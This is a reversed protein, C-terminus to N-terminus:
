QEIVLHFVRSVSESHVSLLYVGNPLTSGLKIHEDLNGDRAVVKSNYVVQGIMNTLQLSVEEDGTVGLTGKVVFEGKNPNPIVTLVEAGWVPLVATGGSTVHMYVKESGSAQCLQGSTVNCRITDYNAFNKGTYTQKTEGAILKGNKLWQYAPAVVTNTINATFTVSQKDTVDTGPVATITVVPSVPTIVTLTIHDYAELPDACTANSKLRVVVVDGDIPNYTYTAGSAAVSGNVNWEYLPTVGGNVPTALLTVGAGACVSDNPTVSVAVSPVLVPNVIIGASGAMNMSCTTATNDAVVTYTGPTALAGFDLSSGLGPLSDILMGTNYLKYKVGTASGSLLVHVGAAGVCISGGGTVSYLAPKPLVTVTKSATCSTGTTYYVMATGAIIGNVDGFGPGLTIVGGPAKTWVGGGVSNSLTGTAGLCIDARGTIAAPSTVITVTDYVNCGNPGTYTIVVTASSLGIVVGTSPVIGIAPDPSDWLGGVTTDAFTYPVGTCLQKPGSIVGPLSNIMFSVSAFCGTPLTYTLTALGLSYATVLGTPTVTAKTSTWIGLPSADSVTMVSGADCLDHWGTIPAVAANVTFTKTATCGPGNTYTITATGTMLGSVIGTIVDISATTPNSSYWYGGSPSDSLTTTAGVCVASGGTIASPFPNVTIVSSVLCGTVPFTYTLASTGTSVGTLLGTTLGITAVGPNTSTWTGGGISNSLLSTSGVCIYPIGTIPSLPNVTVTTTNICGTTFLTYTIAATGANLGNVVGSGIGVSAVYLDGSSWTGGPTIDSLGTTSGVCVVPTGSIAAPLPNVTVVTTGICGTGLTYTIITTAASVGTVIGSGSTVTAITTNGSSWTGGGADTLATTLGQCVTTTGTIASPLPNVTMTTTIYCGTSVLTYSITATGATVGTVDGGAFIVTAVSTNSSTWYGVGVADSLVSVLGVCVNKVGLIAPPLPNVTVPTTAICGVASTYTITVTGASAGTVIGTGSAVTAITTASSSWTGGASANSLTTTTGPCVTATGTIAPPLPNVTVTAFSSCGTGVTFTINSTGLSIGSVLGSSNITAVTTNSSTWTGGGGGTLASTGGICVNLSGGIVPPLLNVTVGTTVFCGSTATYTITATGATLGTYTGSTAGIPAVLTNSSSWTGGLTADSLTASLGSCVITSGTIAAPAASVIVVATVFCGTPLTYSVTATGPNVGLM